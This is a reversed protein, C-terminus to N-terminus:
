PCNNSTVDRWTVANDQGYEVNDFWPNVREAGEFGWSAEGDGDADWGMVRGAYRDVTQWRVLAAPSETATGVFVVGRPCIRGAGILRATAAPM